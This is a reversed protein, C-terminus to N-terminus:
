KHPNRMIRGNDENNYYLQHAFFGSISYFLNGEELCSYQKM